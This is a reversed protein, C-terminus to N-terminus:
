VFCISILFAAIFIITLILLYSTLNKLERNFGKFDLQQQKYVQGVSYKDYDETTVTLKSDNVVFINTDKEKYKVQIPSNYTEILYRPQSQLYLILVLSTLILVVLSVLYFTSSKLIKKIKFYYLHLYM